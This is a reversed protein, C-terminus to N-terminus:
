EKKRQKRVHDYLGFLVAGYIASFFVIVNGRPLESFVLLLGIAIGYYLQAKFLKNVSAKKGDDTQSEKDEDMLIYVFYLVLGFGYFLVDILDTDVVSLYTLNDFWFLGIYLIFSMSIFLYNQKDNQNGKLNFIYALFVLFIYLSNENAYVLYAALGILVLFDVVTPRKGTIQNIVRLLLLILLITGLSVQFDNLLFPIGLGAACVAAYERKCDIERVLAWTLFLSAGFQVATLLEGSFFYGIVAFLLSAVLIMQNPQYTLSIKRGLTFM